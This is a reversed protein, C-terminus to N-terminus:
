AVYESVQVQSMARDFAPFAYVTPQFGVCWVVPSISEMSASYSATMSSPFSCAGLTCKSSIYLRPSFTHAADERLMNVRQSDSLRLTSYVFLFLLSLKPITFCLDDNTKPSASTIRRLPVTRGNVAHESSSSSDRGRAHVTPRITVEALSKQKSITYKTLYHTYEAASHIVLKM